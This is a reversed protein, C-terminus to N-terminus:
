RFHNDASRKFRGESFFFEWVLYPINFYQQTLSVYLCLFPFPFSCHFLFSIESTHQLFITSFYISPYVYLEKYIYLESLSNQRLTLFSFPKMMKTVNTVHHHLPFINLVYINLGCWM